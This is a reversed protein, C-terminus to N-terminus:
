RGALGMLCAKLWHPVRDVSGTKDSQLQVPDLMTAQMGGLHGSVLEVETM